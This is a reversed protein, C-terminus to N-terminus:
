PINKRATPAFLPIPDPSFHRQNRVIFPIFLPMYPCRTNTNPSIPGALARKAAVVIGHRSERIVGTRSAKENAKLWDPIACDNQCM